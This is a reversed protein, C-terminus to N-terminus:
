LKNKKQDLTTLMCIKLRWKVQIKNLLQLM